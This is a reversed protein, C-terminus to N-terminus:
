LLELKWTIKVSAFFGAYAPKKKAQFESEGTVVHM